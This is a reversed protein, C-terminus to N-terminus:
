ALTYGLLGCLKSGLPKRVRISWKGSTFYFGLLSKLLTLCGNRVMVKIETMISKLGIM